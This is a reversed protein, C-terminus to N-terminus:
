STGTAGRMAAELIVANHERAAALRRQQVEALTSTSRSENLADRGEFVAAVIPDEPGVEASESFRRLVDNWIREGTDLATREEAFFEEPVFVLQNVIEAVFPTHLHAPESLPEGSAVGEEVVIFAQFSREGPRGSLMVNLEGEKWMLAWDLTVQETRVHRREASVLDPGALASVVADGDLDALAGGLAPAVGGMTRMVPPADRETRLHISAAGSTRAVSDRVTTAAAPAALWPPRSEPAYWDFTHAALTVPRESRDSLPAVPAVGEYLVHQGLVLQEYFDTRLRKNQADAALPVHEAQWVRGVYERDRWADKGYLSDITRLVVRYRMAPSHGPEQTVITVRNIARYRHLRAPKEIIINPFIVPSRAVTPQQSELRRSPTASGTVTESATPPTSLFRLLGATVLLRIAGTTIMLRAYDAKAQENAATAAEDLAITGAPPEWTYDLTALRGYDAGAAFARFQESSLFADTYRALDFAGVPYTEQLLSPGSVPSGSYAGYTL